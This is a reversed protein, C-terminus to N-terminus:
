TDGSLEVEGLRLEDIARHFSWGGTALVRVCDPYNSRLLCRCRRARAIAAFDLDGPNAAPGSRSLMGYVEIQDGAHVGLLHGEVVLTAHGGAPKWRLGDRVSTVNVTLRSSDGAAMAVMPNFPPAPVLRPGTLALGRLAVPQPSERAWAALDNAPFLNWRFHHWGGALCGLSILLALSALRIWGLKALLLWCLLAAFSGCWWVQCRLPWLRDLVIGGVVGCLVVVLPQYHFTPGASPTDAQAPTSSRQM